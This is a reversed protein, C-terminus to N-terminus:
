YRKARIRSLTEPTIGLHSAIQKLEAKQVVEPYNKLLEHYREVASLARLNIAREESSVYYKETLIRGVINFEIFDQYITQLDEYSISQLISDDLLEITEIAPKRSYFSYVSIMIDNKGLFWSTYEKGDKFYYARAFGEKIFYIRKETQGERLLVHKKPFLEEKLISKIREILTSSLPVIGSLVSILESIDM